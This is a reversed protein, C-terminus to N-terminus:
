FAGNGRGTRGYTIVFQRSRSKRKLTYSLYSIIIATLLAINKYREAV